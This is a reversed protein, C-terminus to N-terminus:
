WLRQHEKRTLTLLYTM